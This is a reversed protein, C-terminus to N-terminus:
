QAPAHIAVGVGGVRGRHGHRVQQLTRSGIHELKEVGEQLVIGLFSLPGGFFRAMSSTRRGKSGRGRRLQVYAPQLSAQPRGATAKAYAPSPGDTLLSSANSGLQDLDSPAIIFFLSKIKM